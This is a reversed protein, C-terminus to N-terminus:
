NQKKVFNNEKFFISLDVDRKIMESLFILLFLTGMNFDVITYAITEM